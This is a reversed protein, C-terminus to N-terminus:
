KAADVVSAELKLEYIAKTPDNTKVLVSKVIRGTGQTRLKVQLPTSGGPKV